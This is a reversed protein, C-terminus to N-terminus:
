GDVVKRNLLGTIFGTVEYVSEPKDSGKIQVQPWEKVRVAHKVLDYTRQSILIKNPPALEQLDHAKNVTHGLVTYNVIHQTGVNGVIAEGTAIGIGFAIRQDAPLQRHVAHTNKLIRIATRIAKVAHDAQPLPANFFAMVEDGMFKDLTGEERLVAEAAVSLYRNIVSMLAEPPMRVSFSTFGRLDAFLVTIVQRRGGPRVSEPQNLIHEVVPPAVYHEFLARLQKKERERRAEIEALLRTNEIAIAAYDSLMRLLQYDHQDLPERNSKNSIILSGIMKGRFKLPASMMLDDHMTYLTEEEGITQFSKGDRRRQVQTPLVGESGMLILRGETAGTLYLAADVIRELLQEREQLTTVAKSVLYLTDLEQLRQRLQANAKQLRLSTKKLQIFLANREQEAQTQHLTRKIVELLTEIDFPKPVYDRVGLRFVEVAVSESGYSTTLIVPISVNRERLARLVEVGNMRPMEYDLLILDPYVSLAMELGEVGDKATSVKFGEPELISRRTFERIEENDDVVLIHTQQLLAENAMM